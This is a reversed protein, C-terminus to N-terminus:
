PLQENRTNTPVAGGITLLIPDRDNGSGTYKVTGDLTVDEPWYGSVMATPVVGGIRSLIPDRDNSSGSYKVVADPMVNGQWLAHANFLVRQANVGFLAIVGQTLDLAFPAGSLAVPSATMVGLHNRHRIAVHYAGGAQCFELPSVGDLAVIEGDRQLLAARRELVVTPAAPHRLEVMVWDVIANSGNVSLVSVDTTTPGDIIFGMASYPEALPLFGRTRLSDVMQQDAVRYAGELFVRPALRTSTCGPQTYRATYGDWLGASTLNAVPPGPAMDVTWMLQGCVHIQEATGLAVGTVYDNATSGMSFGWRLAGQGTYSILFADTQGNTQLLTTGPGPDIDMPINAATTGFTGGVYIRGLADVAVDFGENFNSSLPIAWLFQGQGDLKLVFADGLENGPIIFQGPGPDLDVPSSRVAGTVVPGGDPGVAIGRGRDYNVDGISMAWVFGGSANLKLIFMNPLSDVTLISTGPGPDFDGDAAYEGTVLVNGVADLALDHGFDSNSGGVSVAWILAGAPTFKMVFVDHGGGVSGIVTSGPGPDVDLPGMLNGTVHINGANDCVVSRGVDDVNSGIVHYWLLTGAADLKLIVLDDALGNTTAMSVGPGPDMDVTGRIRGTVIVNGLPDITVGRAEDNEAGGITRAWLMQGSASLKIIYWDLGGQSTLTTVGPGPQADMSNRYAGVSVVSGDSHVAVGFGSDANSGGHTVAWDLTQARASSIAFLGCLLLLM